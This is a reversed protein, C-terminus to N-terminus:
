NRTIVAGSAAKAYPYLTLHDDLRALEELQFRKGQVTRAILYNTILYKRYESFAVVKVRKTQEM